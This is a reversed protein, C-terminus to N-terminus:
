IGKNSILFPNTFLEIKMQLKNYNKVLFKFHMIGKTQLIFIKTWFTHVNLSHM